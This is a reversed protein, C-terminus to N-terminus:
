AYPNDVGYFKYVTTVIGFDQVEPWHDGDFGPAKELTEQDIDLRFGEEDLDVELSAWPIAFLKDGLGLFGGFSLVAYVICGTDLDVMFDEIKGLDDGDLNRVPDGILTSASLAGLREKEIM